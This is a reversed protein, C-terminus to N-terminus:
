DVVRGPLLMAVLGAVHAEILAPDDPEAGLLLRAEDSNIFQLSSAGVLVYHILRADIPAAVGLRQLVLWHAALSEYNARVYNEILWELRESASTAEHILIQHLQPRESVFEVWRRILLVFQEVPDTVDAIVRLHIRLDGFLDDVVARWLDLKTSFHYNIQPQHADARRAIATTSAGDFGKNGFEVAAAELLLARINKRDRREVAGMAGSRLWLRMDSYGNLLSLRM